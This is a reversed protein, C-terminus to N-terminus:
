PMLKECLPLMEEIKAVIRKQEALPPLPVILSHLVKASLGKIGIGKGNILGSNKYLYFVYYFFRVSVDGYPRLRHIHNQIRMPFDYNWIAARGIDGGELVLLDGKRVTCKEIEPDSFLMTKLGSLEFHNWYVNSTTIYELASGIKDSSNLAKGTNHQFLEGIYAWEWSEPIFFPLKEETIESLTNTKKITGAKILAEKEKQIDQYLDEGTGEEPRQPALKGQIAYQLISKQLDDPFRANLEELRNWAEEYQDVLPMLEEIREVIRKQEALPPLPIPMLRLDNLNIKFTHTGGGVKVKQIWSFGYGSNIVQEIYASVDSNVLQILGLSVFISFETDVDICLAKGLTGIRCVLVDGKKPKCREVLRKHEELTIYKTNSFDMVGASIDKVSLFPIGDEVYKPTKHTGDSILTSLDNLHVWAWNEPIPFVMEDNTIAPLSKSKKILGQEILNQKEKQIEEFLEDGSGEESRQEVIKGQVALQLISNRLEQPTM